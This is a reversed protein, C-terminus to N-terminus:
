SSSPFAYCEYHPQVQNPPLPTAPPTAPAEVTVTEGTPATVAVAVIAVRRTIVGLVPPLAVTL